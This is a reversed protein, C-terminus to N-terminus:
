SATGSSAGDSPDTPPAPPVAEAEGAEEVCFPCAVEERIPIGHPCAPPPPYYDTDTIHPALWAACRALEAWAWPIRRWLSERDVTPGGLQLYQERCAIAEEAIATLNARTLQLPRM